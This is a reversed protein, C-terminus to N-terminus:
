RHAVSAPLHGVDDDRQRAARDEAHGDPDDDDRM